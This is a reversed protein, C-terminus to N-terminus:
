SLESPQARRGCGTTPQPNEPWVARCQLQLDLRLGARTRTDLGDLGEQTRAQRGGIWGRLQHLVDDGPHKPTRHTRADGIDCRVV